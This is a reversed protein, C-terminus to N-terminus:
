ATIKNFIDITKEAQEKKQNSWYGKRKSRIAKEASEKSNIGVCAAARLLQVEERDLKIAKLRETNITFDAKDYPHLKTCIPIYENNGMNEGINWVFFDKPIKEVIEFIDERETLNSKTYIKGKEIRFSTKM